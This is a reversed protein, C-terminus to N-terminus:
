GHWAMTEDESTNRIGRIQILYTQNFSLRGASDQTGYSFRSTSGGRIKRAITQQVLKFALCALTVRARVAAEDRGWHREELGWGEKLERYGDNEIHWRPRYGQLAAFVESWTRTSVLAQAEEVPQAEPEVERILCGWLAAKPV